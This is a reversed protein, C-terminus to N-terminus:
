KIGREKLIAQCLELADRRLRSSGSFVGDIYIWWAIKPTANHVNGNRPYAEGVVKRVIEFRKGRTEM